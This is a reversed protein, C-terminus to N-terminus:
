RGGRYPVHAIDVGAMAKFLEGSLHPPTGIGSSGYSHRGPEAKLLTILERVNNAKVSPNVLLVNPVTALLSIPTFDRVSDYPPRAAMLPNIAHTAVTGM